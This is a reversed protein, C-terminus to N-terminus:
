RVIEEIQKPNLPLLGIDDYGCVDQETHVWVIEPDEAVANHNTNLVFGAIVGIAIYALKSPTM